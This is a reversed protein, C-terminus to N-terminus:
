KLSGSQKLGYSTSPMGVKRQERAGQDLQHVSVCQKPGTQHRSLFGPETGLGSAAISNRASFETIGTRETETPLYALSLYILQHRGKTGQLREPAAQSCTQSHRTQGWPLERGARRGCISLTDMSQMPILQLYRSSTYASIHKTYIRCIFRDPSQRPQHSTHVGNKLVKLILLHDATLICQRPSGLPSKWGAERAPATGQTSM